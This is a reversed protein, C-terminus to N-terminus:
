YNLSLILSKYKFIDEIDEKFIDEIEKIIKEKYENDIMYSLGEKLSFTGENIDYNELVNSKFVKNDGVDLIEMGHLGTFDGYEEELISILKKEIQDRVFLTYHQGMRPKDALAYISACIGM